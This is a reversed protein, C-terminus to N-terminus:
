IHILSLVSQETSEPRAGAADIGMVAFALQGNIKNNGGCSPRGEVQTPVHFRRMFPHADRLSVVRSEHATEVRRHVCEFHWLWLATLDYGKDGAQFRFEDLWLRDELIPLALLRPLLDDVVAAIADYGGLRSYLSGAKSEM